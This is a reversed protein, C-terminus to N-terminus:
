LVLEFRIHRTRWDDGTEAHRVETAESRFHEGCAV